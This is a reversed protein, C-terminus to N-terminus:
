HSQFNVFGEACLVESTVVCNTQWLCAWFCPPPVFNGKCPLTLLYGPIIYGHVCIKYVHIQPLTEWHLKSQGQAWCTVWALKSRKTSQDWSRSNGPNCAQMMEGLKPSNKLQWFWHKWQSWLFVTSEQPSQPALFLRVTTAFSKPHEDKTTNSGRATDEQRGGAGSSEVRDPMNLLTLLMEEGTRARGSCNTGRSAGDCLVCSSGKKKETMLILVEKIERQTLNMSEQSMHRRNKDMLLTNRSFPQRTTLNKFSQFRLIGHRRWADGQPCFKSPM